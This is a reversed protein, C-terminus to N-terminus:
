PGNLMAHGMSSVGCRSCTTSWGNSIEITPGDFQHECNAFYHQDICLELELGCERRCSYGHECKCPPLDVMDYEFFGPSRFVRKFAFDRAEKSTFAIIDSFERGPPKARIRFLGVGKM